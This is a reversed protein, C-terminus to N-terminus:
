VKRDFFALSTGKICVVSEGQLRLEHVYRVVDAHREDCDHLVFRSRPAAISLCKETDNKAYAYTHAGDIFFFSAGRVPAFDWKASDVYHQVINKIEPLSTYAEGVRRQRILHFDDKPLVGQEDQGPQYDLPLDLTHVTAWPANLALAATTAGNFTGIEVISSPRSDNLLALLAMLDPQPLAGDINRQSSDVRVIPLQAVIERIDVKPIEFFQELTTTSIKQPVGFPDIKDFADVLRRAADRPGSRLARILGATNLSLLAKPIKKM